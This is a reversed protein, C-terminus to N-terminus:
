RVMVWLGDEKDLFLGIVGAIRNLRRFYRPMEAAGVRRFGFKEYLSGLKARCTLYLTGPHAAILREIIARAVGKGQWAPRVVISALEQSGDRHPKVQGCGIIEGSESVAVIFRQWNLDAPNIRAAYVLSKIHGAESEIAPRLDFM